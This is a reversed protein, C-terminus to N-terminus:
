EMQGNFELKLLYQYFRFCFNFNLLCKMQCGFNFGYTKYKRNNHRAKCVDARGKKYTKTKM